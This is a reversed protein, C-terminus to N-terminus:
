QKEYGECIIKVEAVETANNPIKYREDIRYGIVWAIDNNVCLVQVSEKETLTLKLDTLFDSIKKRGHLGLPYFFDGAQWPRITIPCNIIDTTLWCRHEDAKPFPNSSLRQHREVTYHLPVTAQTELPTIILDDRDKLAMYRDTYFRKGSDKTLSLYIAKTESFGYPRLLEFLVTEASPYQLLTPIHIKTQKGQHHVVKESIAAITLDILAIYGQLHECMNAFHTIEADSYDSLQQRIANRLFHTDANTSDEVFSLHQLTLYDLIDKRQVCLLPRVIYGNRPQMAALGRIGTGRRINLLVTEAQDNQHHAVAIAQCSYEQRCQEFWEYRLDRAAMEISIGREKAIATTQFHTVYLPISKQACLSRVFQEDRDSEAGRLHFNCHVAICHYGLELLVTLLAVSDAGGSVGVLVPEQHCLLHHQEIYQQVRKKM